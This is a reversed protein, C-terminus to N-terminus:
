FPHIEWSFESNNCANDINGGSFLSTSLLPYSTSKHAYDQSLVFKM